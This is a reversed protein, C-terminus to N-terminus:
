IGNITIGLAQLDSVRVVKHGHLTYTKCTVSVPSKSQIPIELLSMLENLDGCRLPDLITSKIKSEVFQRNYVIEVYRRQTHRPIAIHCTRSYGDSLLMRRDLAFGHPNCPLEDWRFISRSAGLYKETDAPVYNGTATSIETGSDHPLM